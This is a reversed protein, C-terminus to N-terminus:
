VKHRCSWPKWGQSRWMGAAYAINQEPNSLYDPSPRGYKLSGFLNIQFLGWSDDGTRADGNHSYEWGGSECIMIKRAYEWSSGFHLKLLGDFRGDYDRPKPYWGTPVVAVQVPQPAEVVPEPKVEAVVEASVPAPAEQQKL